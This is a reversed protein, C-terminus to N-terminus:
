RDRRDDGWTVFFLRYKDPDQNRAGLRRALVRVGDLELRRVDPTGECTAYEHIMGAYRRLTVEVGAQELAEAYAEGEDRLPDFEATVVVAPPLGALSGHIPSVRPDSSDVGHGAYHDFFWLMTPLDLMYGSANEERSPYGGGNGSARDSADM